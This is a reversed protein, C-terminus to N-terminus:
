EVPSFAKYTAITVRQGDREVVIRHISRESATMAMRALTADCAAYVAGDDPDVRVDRLTKVHGVNPLDIEIDVREVGFLGVAARQVVIDVDGVPAFTYAGPAGLDRLDVRRGAAALADIERRTIGPHLTGLAVIFDGLRAVRDLFLMADADASAFLAEELREAEVDDMHGSVYDDIASLRRHVDTM